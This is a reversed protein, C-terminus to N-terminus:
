KLIIKKSFAKGSEMKGTVIIIQNRLHSINTSFEVKQLNNTHHFEKGSLDFLSISKIKENASKVFLTKQNQYIQIDNQKHDNTSMEEHNILYKIIQNDSTTLLLYNNYGIMSYYRRFSDDIFVDDGNVTQLVGDHNYGMIIGGNASDSSYYGTIFYYNNLFFTYDWNLHSDTFFEVYGVENFEPDPTLNEMDLVIFKNVYPPDDEIRPTNPIYFKGDATLNVHYTSTLLDVIGSEVLDFFSREETNLYNLKYFTKSFSRWTYINSGIQGEFLDYILGSIGGDDYSSDIQGQQNYKVLGEEKLALFSGDNLLNLPKPNGMVMELSNIKGDVGFDLDLVGDVNYRSAFSHDNPYDFAGSYVVIYYDDQILLYYTGEEDLFFLTQIGNEGFTEDIAGNSDIKILALENTSIKRCFFIYGEDYLYVEDSRNLEYNEPVEFVGDNSFSVDKTLTIQAFLPMVFVMMLLTLSTKM